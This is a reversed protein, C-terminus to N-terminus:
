HVPTYILDPMVRTELMKFGKTEAITQLQDELFEKVKGTLIAKRYKSCWIIHYNPHLISGFQIERVINSGM